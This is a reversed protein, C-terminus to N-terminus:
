QKIWSDSSTIKHLVMKMKEIQVLISKRLGSSLFQEKEVGCLLCKEYGLHAIFLAIVTERIVVWTLWIKGKHKLLNRIHPTKTTGVRTTSRTLCDWLHMFLWKIKLAEHERAQHETFLSAMNLIAESKPSANHHKLLTSNIHVGGTHWGM